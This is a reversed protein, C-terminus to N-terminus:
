FPFRRRELLSYEKKEAGFSKFFHAVGKISSGEFDLIIQGAEATHTSIMNDLLFHMANKSKGEKTSRAMLYTLRNNFLTLLCTSLLTENHFVDKIIALDNIKLQHVISKLKSQFSPTLKIQEDTLSLYNKIFSEAEGDRIELDHKAANKLNAKLRKAYGKRIKEPSKDLQLTFNPRARHEFSPHSLLGNDENLQLVIHRHKLPIVDIIRELSDPEKKYFMGLQQSFPPVTIRTLFPIKKNLPLPMGVSYDDNIIASWQGACVADLYWSLAYVRPNIADEILKDWKKKDLDKHPILRYM